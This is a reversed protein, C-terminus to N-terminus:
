QVGSVIRPTGHAKIDFERPQLMRIWRGFNLERFGINFTSMLSQRMGRFTPNDLYGHNTIFGLVGYGTQEIRYQGFRIFKVYDDNLWKPNREGLSKGDCEFYGPAGGKIPLKKKILDKSWQNKNASHGSYPPNGMVVMIPCETKVTSAANAELAIQSAMALLPGAVLEAEELTNTLYVRLRENSSFSYGTEKLLWGLKLHAVAYPAMMLEFGYLRPLLHQAVYGMDGSWSGRNSALTNYIQNVTEYLFTGTGTAPDLIQVRHVERKTKGTKSTSDSFEAKIKTKDALGDPCNFDKKLIEDISRVIYSVVPEPTYYVGRSKRLSKDYAALFTEYFHVVPDEQR